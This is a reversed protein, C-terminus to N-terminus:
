YVHFKGPISSSYLNFPTRATKNPVKGLNGQHKLFDCWHCWYWKHATSSDEMQGQSERWGERGARCRLCSEHCSPKKSELKYTPESSPFCPCSIQFTSPSQSKGSSLGMLLSHSHVCCQQLLCSINYPLDPELQQSPVLLSHSTSGTSKWLAGKKKFRCKQSGASNGM